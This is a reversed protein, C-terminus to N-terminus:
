GSKRGAILVCTFTHRRGYSHTSKYTNRLQAVATFTKIYFTRFIGCLLSFLVFLQSVNGQTKNDEKCVNKLTKMRLSNIRRGSTTQACATRNRVEADASQSLIDMAFSIDHLYQLISSTIRM